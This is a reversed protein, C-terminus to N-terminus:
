SISRRGLPLKMHHLGYFCSLLTHTHYDKLISLLFKHESHRITKIIFCYDCSFYFSGSKGLSSLKSLLYDAPDLHFCDKHLKHFVWPAHDKSKFDYKALPTLNNGVSPPFITLIHPKLSPLVSMCTLHHSM